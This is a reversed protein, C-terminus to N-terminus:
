SNEEDCIKPYSNSKGHRLGAMYANIAAIAEGETEAWAIPFNHYGDKASLIIENYENKFDGHINIQFNNFFKKKIIETNADKLVKELKKNM